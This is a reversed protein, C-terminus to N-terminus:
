YEYNTIWKQILIWLHVDVGINMAAPNIITLIYFYSLHKDMLLQMFFIHHTYATFM